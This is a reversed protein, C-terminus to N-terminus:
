EAIPIVPEQTFEVLFLRASIAVLQQQNDDIVLDATKVLAWVEAQLLLKSILVELAQFIITSFNTFVQQHLDKFETM